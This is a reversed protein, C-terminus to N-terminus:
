DAAPTEQTMRQRVVDFYTNIKKLISAAKRRGFRERLWVHPDNSGKFNNCGGIGHCLPLTNDATSGPCAPSSLPIFHDLALTWTFGEQNGCLACAFHWYQLMFTRDATSFTGPLGRKHARRRHLRTQHTGPNEKRKRLLRALLPGRTKAYWARERQREQALNAARKKNKRARIQTRNAAYHKRERLRVYEPNALRQANNEARTKEPNTARRAQRASNICSRCTTTRGSKYRRNISFCELPKNVGCRPCM